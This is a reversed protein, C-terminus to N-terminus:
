DSGGWLDRQNGEGWAAGPGLTPVGHLTFACSVELVDYGDKGEALYLKTALAYSEDLKLPLQDTGTTVSDAAIRSGPPKSPDFSFRM